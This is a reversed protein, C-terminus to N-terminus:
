AAEADDTDAPKTKTKPKSARPKPAPKLSASLKDVVQIGYQGFWEPSQEYSRLIYQRDLETTVRMCAHCAMATNLDGMNADRKLMLIAAEENDVQVAQSPRVALIHGCETLSHKDSGFIEAGHELALAKAKEELSELRTKHEETALALSAQLAAIQALTPGAAAELSAKTTAYDTLLELAYQRPTLKASM